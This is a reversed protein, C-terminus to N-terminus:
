KWSNLFRSISTGGRGSGPPAGGGGTGQTSGQVESRGGSQQQIRAARLQDGQTVGGAAEREEEARRAAMMKRASEKEEQTGKRDVSVRMDGMKGDLETTGPPGLPALRSRYVEGERWMRMQMEKMYQQQPGIITGPRAIRAWGIFEEATFKFHKMIYNGICCGTRGLGAKCHVAVAGPTQEAKQIFRALLHDPPNSGDLFYLDMHDIGARTFSAADYYKKNLRVVLTVNKRKFYPVYAEPPLNHYENAHAASHPGAFAVFKGDMIWNLDGSEVQEYHEYEEVDFTNLNFFHCDMAKKLGRLTDMITLNFSCVTPTADHWPPFPTCGRFPKFAEEPSKGLCIMQWSCILHCANARRNGHSGSYFYIVSSKLRSDSLKKNLMMCFRYVHGLNLPGFDLFFNWYIFEQDISFFHRDGRSVAQGSPQASLPVYYLRDPLIEIAQRLERESM